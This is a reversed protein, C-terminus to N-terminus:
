GSSNLTRWPNKEELGELFQARNEAKKMTFEGEQYDWGNEHSWIYLISVLVLDTEGTWVNGGFETKLYGTAQQVQCIKM